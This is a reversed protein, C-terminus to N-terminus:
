DEQGSWMRGGIAFAGVGIATIELESSGLRRKNVASMM